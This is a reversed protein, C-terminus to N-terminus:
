LNIDIFMTLVEYKMVSESGVRGLRQQNTNTNAAICSAHLRRRLSIGVNGQDETGRLDVNLFSELWVWWGASRKGQGAEKEWERKRWIYTQRKRERQKEQWCAVISHVRDTGILACARTLAIWSEIGIPYCVAISDQGQVFVRSGQTVITDKKNVRDRNWNPRDTAFEAVSRVVRCWLWVLHSM